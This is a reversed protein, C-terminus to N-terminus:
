INAIPKKKFVAISLNKFLQDGKILGIKGSSQQGAVNFFRLFGM